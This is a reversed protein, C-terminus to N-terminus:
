VQKISNWADVDEAFDTPVADFLVVPVRGYDSIGNCREFTSEMPRECDPLVVGRYGQRWYRGEVINAPLLISFAPNQSTWDYCRSSAVKM